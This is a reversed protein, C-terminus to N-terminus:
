KKRKTIVLAAAAAAFLAFAIPSQEGTPPITGEPEKDESTDKQAESETKDSSSSEDSSTDGKSSSDESSTDEEADKYAVVYTSFKDTMFTIKGTEKDYACPLVEAEGEHVRIIEIDDSSSIKEKLHEPADVSLSIEKATETVADKQGLVDKYINIDLYLESQSNESLAADVLAKDESSPTEQTEATLTIKATEGSELMEMNDQLLSNALSEIDDDLSVNPTGEKIETEAEVQRPDLEFLIFGIQVRENGDEVYCELQMSDGFPDTTAKTVTISNGTEDLKEYYYGRMEDFRQAEWRYTVNGNTSKADVKLEVKEGNKAIGLYGREFRKPKAGNVTVKEDLTNVPHLLYYVTTEFNGDSIVCWYYEYGETKTVTIEKNTSLQEGRETLTGESFYGAEIVDYWTYTVTAGPVSSVADASLKVKGGKECDYVDFFDIGAEDAEIKHDSGGTIDLSDCIINFDTSGVSIDKNGLYLNCSYTASRDTTVTLSAGTEGAITVYDKTWECILNDPTVGDVKVNELSLTFEEGAKVFARDTFREGNMCRDYTTYAASVQGMPVCLCLMVLALLVSLIRKAKM